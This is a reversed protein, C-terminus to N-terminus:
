YAGKGQLVAPITQMLIRCDLGLNWNRIYRMDLTAWEDFDSIDSRGSVQWICTIGPTVALRGWQWPEYRVFEEALPPRPGVLSM